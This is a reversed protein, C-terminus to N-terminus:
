EKGDFKMLLREDLCGVGYGFNHSEQIVVRIVKLNEKKIKKGSQKLLNEYMRDIYIKTRSIIPAHKSEGAVLVETVEYTYEKKKVIEKVHWTSYRIPKDKIM